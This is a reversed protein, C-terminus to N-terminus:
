RGNGELADGPASAAGGREAGHRLLARMVEPTIPKTAFDDMGAALCEKRSEESANATLGLIWTRRAAPPAQAAELARIARTAETGNMRPMQLDMLICDPPPGAQYAEVIAAGDAAVRVDSVGCRRLVALAVRVNVANDEALLMRLGAFAPMAEADEGSASPAQSTRPSADPGDDLLPATAAAAANHLRALLRGPAVPLPVTVAPAACGPRGVCWASCSAPPAVLVYAARPPLPGFTSTQTAGFAPTTSGFTPQAAPSAGSGLLLLTAEDVLLLVARADGAVAAAAAPLLQAPLMADAGANAGWTAAQRLLAAAQGAAAAPMCCLVTVGRLSQTEAAAAEDPADLAFPVLVTFTSGVGAASTFDVLGGMQEVLARCIVLGLGTGVPKAGGSGAAPVQSFPRFLRDHLEPPVGCGTDDIVIRAWQRRLPSPPSVPVAADTIADDAGADPTYGRLSSTRAGLTAASPADCATATVCVRGAAASATFKVANDALNTLVQRLRVADGLLPAAQLAADVEVRLAVGATAAKGGVVHVVDDLVARLQLPACVLPERPGGAREANEFKAFQLLQNIIDLLNHAAGLGADLYERLHPELAAAEELM